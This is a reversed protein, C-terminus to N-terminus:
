NELLLFDLFFTPTNKLKDTKTKKQKSLKYFFNWVFRDDKVKWETVRVNHRSLIFIFLVMNVYINAAM